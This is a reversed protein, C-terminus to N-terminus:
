NTVPLTENRWRLPLQQAGLALMGLSAPQPTRAIPNTLSASPGFYRTTPADAAEKTQGAKIPKGATTEYAYGTLTVTFGGKTTTVTLRAWGFHFRGKIKFKLGLYRNKVGKGGNVWQGSWSTKSSHTSFRRAGMPVLTDKGLFRYGNQIRAGARLAVAGGRSSGRVQNSANSGLMSSTCNIGTHCVRLTSITGGSRQDISHSLYFDVKGDHNLDLSFPQGAKLIVHAPTYIIKAEAPPALALMGVGAATAALAYMNLQRHISDSFNAPTQLPRPSRKM